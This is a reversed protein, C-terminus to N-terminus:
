TSKAVALFLQYRVFSDGYVLIVMRPYCALFFFFFFFFFFVYYPFAFPGKCLKFLCVVIIKQILYLSRLFLTLAAFRNDFFFFFFFFLKIM